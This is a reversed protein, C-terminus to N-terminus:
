GVPHEAMKWATKATKSRVAGRLKGSPSLYWPNLCWVKPPLKSELQRTYLVNSIADKRDTAMYTETRGTPKATKVDLETAKWLRLRM